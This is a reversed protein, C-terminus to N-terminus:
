GVAPSPKRPSAEKCASGVGVAVDGRAQLKYFGIRANGVFVRVNLVRRNKEFVWRVFKIHLQM